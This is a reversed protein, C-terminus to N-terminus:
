VLQELEERSLGFGDVEKAAKRQDINYQAAKIVTELCEDSPDLSFLKAAALREESVTDPSNRLAKEHYSNRKVVAAVKIEECDGDWAPTDGDMKWDCKYFITGRKRVAVIGHDAFTAELWVGSDWPDDSIVKQEVMKDRASGNLADEIWEWSGEIRAFVKERSLAAHDDKVTTGDRPASGQEKGPQDAAPFLTQEKSVRVTGDPDITVDSKITAPRADMLTKGWTAMQPSKLKGRSHAEIVAEVNSPVPVLSEEMIEFEKIDLGAWVEGKEPTLDDAAIIQFGHSIRMSKAEILIAMDHTLDNIDLLVSAVRLVDKTHDIIELMKGMPLMHNHFALLAMSPDVKAGETRMIDRDRDKRPTTVINRFVMLSQKPIAVNSGEKLISKFDSSNTVVEDGIKMGENCYVTRSEADKVAAAIDDVSRVGLLSLAHSDGNAKLIPRLYKDATTIGYGFGDGPAPGREALAALLKEHLEM